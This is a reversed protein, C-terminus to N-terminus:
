HKNKDLLDSTNLFTKDNRFSHAPTELNMDLSKRHNEKITLKNAKQNFVLRHKTSILHLSDVSLICLYFRLHKINNQYCTWM